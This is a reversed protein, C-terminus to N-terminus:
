IIYYGNNPHTKTFSSSSLINLSAIKTQTSSQEPIYRPFTHIRDTLVTWRRGLGLSWGPFGQNRILLVLWETTINRRSHHFVPSILSLQSFAIRGSTDMGLQVCVCVCVCVCLDSRGQADFTCCSNSKCEADRSDSRFNLSINSSCLFSTMQLKSYKRFYASELNSSLCLKMQIFSNSIWANQRLTILSILNYKSAIHRM